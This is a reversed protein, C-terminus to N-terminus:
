FPPTCMNSLMAQISWYSNRCGISLDSLNFYLTVSSVQLEDLVAKYKDYDLGPSINRSLYILSALILECHLSGAFVGYVLSDKQIMSFLISSDRMAELMQIIDRIVKQAESQRTQIVLSETTSILGKVCEEWGPLKCDKLKRLQDIIRQAATTSDFRPSSDLLKHVAKLVDKLAVSNYKAEQDSYSCANFFEIIDATSTASLPMDPFHKSELLKMWPLMDQSVRPPTLIKITVGDYQFDRQKIYKILTSVADFYVVMLRLWNLYSRWLPVPEGNHIASPQVSRLDSDEEVMEELKVDGVKNRRFDVLLDEVTELHKEIASSRALHLLTDGYIVASYLDARYNSNTSPTSGHHAALKAVSSEFDELLECLLDHFEGQTKETYVEFPKDAHATKAQERLNPIQTRTQFYLLTSLFAKDRASNADCTTNRPEPLMSVPLSKLSNYFPKSLTENSLRAKMKKAGAATVYTQLLHSADNLKVETLLQSIM